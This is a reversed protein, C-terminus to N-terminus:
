GLVPISFYVIEPVRALLFLACLDGGGGGGMVDGRACHTCSNALKSLSVYMYMVCFEHM